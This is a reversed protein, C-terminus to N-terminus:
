NLIGKNRLRLSWSVRMFRNDDSTLIYIHKQMKNCLIVGKHYKRHTQKGVLIYSVQPDLAIKDIKSNEWRKM